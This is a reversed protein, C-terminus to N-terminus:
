NKRNSFIVTEYWFDKGEMPTLRSHWGLYSAANDIVAQEKEPTLADPARVYFLNLSYPDKNTNSKRVVFVWTVATAGGYSRLSIEYPQIVGCLAKLRDWEEQPLYGADNGKELADNTNLMLSRVETKEYLDEFYEPHGLLSRSIQDFEEFNQDFAARVSAETPYDQRHMPTFAILAVAIFLFYGLPLLLIGWDFDKKM